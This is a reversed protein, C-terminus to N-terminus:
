FCGAWEVGQGKLRLSYSAKEGPATSPSQEDTTILVVGLTSLAAGVGLAIAGGISLPELSQDKDELKSSWTTGEKQSSLDSARTAALTLLVVGTVVGAGGVALSVVAPLSVGSSTEMSADTRPAVAKSPLPEAVFSSPVEPGKITIEAMVCAEGDFAASLERPSVAVETADPGDGFSAVVKRKWWADRLEVDVPAKGYLRGDVWLEAGAPVSVFKVKTTELARLCRTVDPTPEIMYRKLALAEEFQGAQLHAFFCTNAAAPEDFAALACWEAAHRICANVGQQDDTCASSDNQAQELWCSAQLEASTTQDLGPCTSLEAQASVNQAVFFLIALTVLRLM